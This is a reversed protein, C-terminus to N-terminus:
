ASPSPSCALSRADPETSAEALARRRDDPLAQYADWRQQKESPSLQKSEQFTLRARGRESPTMRAWDAMRDQVRQREPASMSPFRSAVELWKAKRTADISGWDRELPALLGRQQASLTSWPPGGLDAVAPTATKGQQAAAGASAACLLVALLTCRFLVTLACNGIDPRKAAACFSASGLTVTPRPHCPTLWCPATSRPPWPSRSCIMTTSSSCWGPWWCWWLCPPCWACGSRLRGARLVAQASQPQVVTRRSALARERSFRLRETIDHPLDQAGRSLHATLRLALQGELAELKPAHGATSSINDLTSNM